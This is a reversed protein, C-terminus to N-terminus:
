RWYTTYIMVDRPNTRWDNSTITSPMSFLM